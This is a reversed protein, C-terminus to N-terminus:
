NEEENLDLGKLPIGLTYYGKRSKLSSLLRKLYPKVGYLTPIM